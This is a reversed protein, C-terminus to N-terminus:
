YKKKQEINELRKDIDTLELNMKRNGVDMKDVDSALENIKVNTRDFLEQSEQEGRISKQQIENAQIALFITMISLLLLIASKTTDWYTKLQSKKFQSVYGGSNVNFDKGKPTVNPLYETLSSNITTKNTLRIVQDDSMEELLRTLIDYDIGTKSSFNEQIWDGYVLDELIEDKAKARRLGVLRKKDM